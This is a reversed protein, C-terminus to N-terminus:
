PAKLSFAFAGKVVHGDKSMTRWTVNYVGPAIQTGLTALLPAGKEKGLTLKNLPVKDGSAKTLSVMSAGLEPAESLWLRIADPSRSLVTDAAPSAKLLRLHRLAESRTPSLALMSLTVVFIAAVSAVLRGVPRIRFNSNFRTVPTSFLEKGRHPFTLASACYLLHM